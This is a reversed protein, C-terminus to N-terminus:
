AKRWKDRGGAKTNRVREVDPSHGPNMKRATGIAEAQTDTVASAKAAGPRMVKYKGDDRREIYLRNQSMGTLKDGPWFLPVWM